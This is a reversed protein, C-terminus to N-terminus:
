LAEQNNLIGYAVEFGCATPYIGLYAPGISIAVAEDRLRAKPDISAYFFPALFRPTRLIMAKNSSLGTHTM